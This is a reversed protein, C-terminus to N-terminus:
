VGALFRLGRSDLLNLLRGSGSIMSRGRLHRLVRSLTEPAIGLQAAIARKPEHLQVALEGKEGIKAHRLLWEACRAEADKALRSVALETQRLHAMAVDHLIEQAPAPLAALIKQFEAVPMRRLCVDTEAVADVANPLSLVAAAAELWCPGEVMGLQHAMVDGAMVGLVVRGTELYSVWPSAVARRLLAEGRVAQHKAAPLQTSQVPLM